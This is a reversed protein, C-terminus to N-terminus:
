QKRAKYDEWRRIAIRIDDQQSQKTGGGLLIIIRDGDKGFYVRYGPGFNIKYESVGRGVAKVNSCNGQALRTVAIAVKAAAHANLTEFWEAFQSRGNPDLYELIEIGYPVM